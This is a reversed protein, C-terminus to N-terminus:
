RLVTRHVSVTGTRSACRRATTYCEGAKSQPNMLCMCQVDRQRNELGVIAEEVIGMTQVKQVMINAEVGKRKCVRGM